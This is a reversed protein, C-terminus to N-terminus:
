RPKREVGALERVAQEPDDQSAVSTGVLVFDAGANAVREVDPRTRIGSEAVAIVDAPVQALLREAMASDIRLTDLDRANVGVASPEATLALELEHAAHVEILTGLGLAAAASRLSFLQAPALIRVILLVASAGHAVAEVLQLEDVIFDKRLVPLEVVGAALSLDQLSGGFHAEETLVSIAMAGGRAYGQAYRAVDLDAQITGQSPSRRKIEAIIGVTGSADALFPKPHVAAEAQERLAAARGHLAAVRRRTM